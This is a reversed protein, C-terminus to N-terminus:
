GPYTGNRTEWITWPLRGTIRKMPSSDSTEQSYDVTTKQALASDILVLISDSYRKEAEIREMTILSESMQATRIRSEGAAILVENFPIIARTVLSDEPAEVVAEEQSFGHVSTFLGLLFLCKLKVIKRIGTNKM